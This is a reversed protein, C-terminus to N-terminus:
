LVEKLSYSNSEPFWNTRDEKGKRFIDKGKFYRSLGLVRTSGLFLQRKKPRRLGFTVPRCFVESYGSNPRTILKGVYRLCPVSVTGITGDNIWFFGRTM